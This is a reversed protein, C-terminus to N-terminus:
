KTTSRAHVESVKTKARELNDQISQGAEEIAPRVHDPAVRVLSTRHVVWYTHPTSEADDERMVVTAPGRWRNKQLRPAGADRWYFCTQGVALPMRLARAGCCHEAYGRTPM